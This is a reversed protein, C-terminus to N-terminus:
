ATDDSFNSLIEFSTFVSFVKVVVPPNKEVISQDSGVSGDPLIYVKAVDENYQATQFIAMKNSPLTDIRIEM